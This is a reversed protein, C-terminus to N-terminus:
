ISPAYAKYQEPTDLDICVGAHPVPVEVVLQSHRQVVHRLGVDSTDSPAEAIALSTPMLVPHGRRGAHTPFYIYGPNARYAEMLTLYVASPVLPMDGLAVFFAETGAPLQSVGLRISSHMGSAWNGNVVSTVLLALPGCAALVEDARAGLVLVVNPVAMAASLSQNVVTRDGWPLLLKHQAGMRSSGGAALLVAGFTM